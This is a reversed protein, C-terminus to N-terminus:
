KQKLVLEYQLGYPGQTIRKEQFGVKKLAYFSRENEYDVCACITGHGTVKFYHIAVLQMAEQFYGKGWYHENLWCYLQSRYVPSRIEIAGIITPSSKQTIGYFFSNKDTLSQHVYRIEQQLNDVHLLQQVRVSYHQVYSSIHGQALPYLVVLRGELVIADM